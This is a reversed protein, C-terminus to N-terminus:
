IERGLLQFKTEGPLLFFMGYFMSFRHSPLTRKCFERFESVSPYHTTSSNEFCGVDDVVIVHNKIQHQAILAVEATVPTTGFDASQMSGYFTLEAAATAGRSAPVAAATKVPTWHGDLFFLAPSNIEKLVSALAKGSDGLVPKIVPSTRALERARNYCWPDIDITYL